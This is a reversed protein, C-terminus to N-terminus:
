SHALPCHVHDCFLHSSTVCCIPSQLDYRQSSLRGTPSSPRVQEEDSNVDEDDITIIESQAQM